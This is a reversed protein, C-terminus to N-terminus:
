GEKMTSLMNLYNEAMQEATGRAFFRNDVEYCGHDFASDAALYGYHANALTLIFTMEYPSGEKIQRGNTSFMEYPAIVFAVDGIAVTNVSVYTSYGQQEKQVARRNIARAHYISNIGLPRGVANAATAGGSNYAAFVQSCYQLLDGDDYCYVAEVKQELIKVDGTSVLTLSDMGEIAFEALQVGHGKWGSYTQEEPIRSTANQDGAAGTFYLVHCDLEQEMKERCAGVFDSSIDYKDIGGTLSPHAAFNMVVIDKEEGCAFRLLQISGDAERVHDVIPSISKDGFNDGVINGNEQVYHRVFALGQTQVTGIEMTTEHQNALAKQATKVAGKLIVAQFIPDEIDPTSHSHTASIMINSQPIGTESSVKSRITSTVNLDSTTSDFGYLLVTNNKADTVALCTLYLPSLVNDSMRDMNNGYGTLGVSVQPTIDYRSFGVRFSGGTLDSQVGPETPLTSANEESCGICGLLMALILTLVFIRKM